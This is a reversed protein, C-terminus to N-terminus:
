KDDHERVVNKKVSHQEIRHSYTATPTIGTTINKCNNIMIQKSM